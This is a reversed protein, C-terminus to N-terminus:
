EIVRDARVLVAPPVTIGLAKATRLNILLELKSPQEVPLDAPRAGGLIRAVYTAALGFSAALSPGYGVLGGFEAHRADSITPIRLRTAIEGLRWEPNTGMLGQVVVAQVGAKRMSVLAAEVEAPALVQEVHTLMGLTRAADNTQGTFPKAFPDTVHALVGIRRVGPMLERLLELRKGSLESSLLAVGTINGGPRSLSKVFGTGLPDGAPAMVIPITTTLQRAAEIAPSPGAVIVDPRNRVLEAALAPLRNVHGEASHWDIVVNRGEVYGHDKLGRLIPERFLDLAASRLVGIRAPKNGQACLQRSALLASIGLIFKRRHTM